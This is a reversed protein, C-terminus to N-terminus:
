TDGPWAGVLGAGVIIAGIGADVVVVVVELVDFLLGNIAADDLLVFLLNM